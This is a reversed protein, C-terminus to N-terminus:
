RDGPPTTMEIVYDNLVRDGVGVPFHRQGLVYASDQDDAQVVTHRFGVMLDGPVRGDVWPEGSLGLAQLYVYTM